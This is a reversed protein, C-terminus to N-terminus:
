EQVADEAPEEGKAAATAAAAEAEAEEDVEPPNIADLAFQLAEAWGQDYSSTKENISDLKAKIQAEPSDAAPADATTSTDTFSSSKSTAM